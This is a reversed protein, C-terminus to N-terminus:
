FIQSVSCLSEIQKSLAITLIFCHLLVSRKQFLFIRSALCEPRVDVLSPTLDFVKCILNLLDSLLVRQSTKNIVITLQNPCCFFICELYLDVREFLVVLVLICLQLVEFGLNFPDLVQKFSATHTHLLVKLLPKLDHNLM